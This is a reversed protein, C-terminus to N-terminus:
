EGFIENILRDKHAKSEPDIDEIEAFIHKKEIMKGKVKFALELEAKRNGVKEGIDDHLAKILMSDPLYQELLEQFGQSDTLIKPNKASNPSYGVERMSKSVNGNNELLRGMAAKQKETAM